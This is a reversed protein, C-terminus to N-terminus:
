RKMTLEISRRVSGDSCTSTLQGANSSFFGHRQGRTRTETWVFDDRAEAFASHALDIARVIRAESSIDRDPTRM